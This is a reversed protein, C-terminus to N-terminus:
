QRGGAKRALPPSDGAIDDASIPFSRHATLHHTLIFTRYAARADDTLDPGKWQAPDKDVTRGTMRWGPPAEGRVRAFRQPCENGHHANRLGCEYCSEPLRM